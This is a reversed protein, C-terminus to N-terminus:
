SSVLIDDLTQPHSVNGTCLKDVLIASALSGLEYGAKFMTNLILLADDMRESKRLSELLSNFTQEQPKLNNKLMSALWAMGDDARRVKCFGNIVSDNSRELPELGKAQMLTLLEVAHDVQGEECLTDILPTFTQVSPELGSSLLRQYMGIAEALRGVKCLGQILTNYTIVDHEIGKTVMGKFVGVAEDVRRHVCFGKAIINCSVTSEKFGKDLMEEYVKLAMGFDGAECYYDLFSCYAYESPQIGKDVMEDWMQQADAIHGMKCLGTLVTSYTVVDIAYGRLKIESFVRLAEGGMGHAFLGHIVRQYVFTAPPCGASIMLHLTESVKAFNGIAVFSTVLDAAAASSPPSGRRAADRLLRLGDLPRCDAACARVLCAVTDANGPFAPSSSFTSFLRFVLDPRAARLAARSAANLAPLSPHLRLHSALLAAADAALHPQLSLLFADIGPLHPSPAPADAPAPLHSALFLLFRLSPEPSPLLRSLTQRVCSPEFLLQRPVLSLLRPEFRPARLVAAAARSAADSVATPVPALESASSSCIHRVSAFLRPLPPM